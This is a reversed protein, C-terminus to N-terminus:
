AVAPLREQQSELLEKTSRATADLHGYDRPYSLTQCRACELMRNAQDMSAELESRSLSSAFTFRQKMLDLVGDLRNTPSITVQARPSDIFCVTRVPFRTANPNEPLIKLKSGNREDITRGAYAEDLVMGSDPWVRHVRYTPVAFMGDNEFVIEVCDDAVLEAGFFHCHALALTSKGRGSEGLFMIGSGDYAVCSAHMITRGQKALIRPMVHDVFVRVVDSANGVPTWYAKVADLSETIFFLTDPSIRMWYGGDVSTIVPLQPDKQREVTRLVSSPALECHLSINASLSERESPIPLFPITVNSSIWVNSYRYWHM